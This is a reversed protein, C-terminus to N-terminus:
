TDASGNIPPSTSSRTFVRGPNRKHPAPGPALLSVMAPAAELVILVTRSPKLTVSPRNGFQAKAVVTSLGSITPSTLSIRVGTSASIPLPLPCTSIVVREPVLLYLPTAAQLMRLLAKFALVQSLFLSI